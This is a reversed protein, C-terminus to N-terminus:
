YELQYIRRATGEFVELREDASLGSASDWALQFVEQYDAALLSVPWDSGFMTRSPGFRGIVERAYRDVGEERWLSWSAETVLGSLKCSVNELAALASLWATWEAWQGEAIAPKGAHDLVFALGPMREAVAIAAASERRRVLLDFALGADQVAELGRLVEPRLLWEPDAEDHVQHRIGVLRGEHEQLRAIQEATDPAALDVWAVVGLVAPTTACLGLLEFSEELSSLAQVVVTGTVPTPAIAELLEAPGVERAIPAVSEDMWPYERVRPNWFHQHADIM